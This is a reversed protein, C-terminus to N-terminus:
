LYVRRNYIYWEFLLVGLAVVLLYKWTEFRAPAFATEGQVDVYGIRITNEERPRIDSEMPDFLNVTFRQTPRDEELVDYAGLQRTDSFSFVNRPGRSLTSRQGSPSRVILEKASESRLDVAMGPQVSEGALEQGQGGLYGLVGFVLTPFSQRIPWNTAVTTNGAEDTAYFDIGLVADEFGERPAIAFLLGKTTDILRSAGLPPNITVAEAILVDGVEMWQMIPHNRDVDIIQPGAAKQDVAWTPVPPIQGLFLTNARPMEEPQCDDYIILDFAGAAALQKHKPTKLDAPKALRVEALKAAGETALATEWPENGDSVLLVKAPRPRNIVAWARNDAALPDKHSLRLELVGSEQDSLDFAVGAGDGPKVTIESADILAGDLHLEATTRVEEGGFNEIRGFAQLRDPRDENRRVSFAVIALNLSSPDGLPVFVPKLAGLSFGQVDRFKGDSFIYMTAPVPEALGEAASGGPNALGAALVLADDLSTGRNTPEIRELAELLLRKNSTFSQEPRATNSFSIIMAVDDDDMQEIMEAIKAKAEALRTRNLDDAQMSASNDVLFVLREDISRTSQWNPRLLALILFAIFLLQLLLLLSTRIRQWLSNVHLDEITRHWLYTSPVELPIRKLKLFYLAIIAPPVLAILAWQWPSLMSLFDM